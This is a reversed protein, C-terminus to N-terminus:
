WIEEPIEYKYPFGFYDSWPRGISDNPGQQRLIKLLEIGLKTPRSKNNALNNEFLVKGQFKDYIEQDTM